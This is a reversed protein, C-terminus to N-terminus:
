SEAKAKPCAPNKIFWHVVFLLASIIVGAGPGALAQTNSPDTLLAGIIQFGMMGLVIVMVFCIAYRYVEFVVAKREEMTGGARSAFDALFLGGLVINILLVLGFFLEM